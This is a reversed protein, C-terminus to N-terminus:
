SGAVMIRRLVVRGLAANLLSLIETERIRLELVAGPHDARVTLVGGAVKRPETLAALGEGAASKWEAAVGALLSRDREPGDARLSEIISGLSKM